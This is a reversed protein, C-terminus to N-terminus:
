VSKLPRPLHGEVQKTIDEFKKQVQPNVFEIDMMQALYGQEVVRKLAAESRLGFCLAIHALHFDAPTVRKSYDALEHKYFAQVIADSFDSALIEEKSRGYITEWGSVVITRFIDLQDADRIVNCFFRERETLDDPLHFDSHHYIAKKIVEKDEEPIEDFNPIIDEAMNYEFLLWAGVHAHNYDDSDKFTHTVVIQGFRAFDHLEGIIWALDVEYDDLGFSKAIVECNSAVIRTHELKAMCMDYDRGKFNEYIGFFEECNREIAERDFTLQM